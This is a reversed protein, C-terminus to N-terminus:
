KIRLRQGVYIKDPNSIGNLKAISKYTVGYKAAIDSLTDGDKVIYYVSKDKKEGNIKSQVEDYRDGLVVKRIDGNGYKGAKTEEVLTNINSESIHNIFNQVENYRPGLKSKRENGDGYKGQMVEIVLDLVPRSDIEPKSFGNTDYKSARKNWENVDGYFKDLDLNGNYGNLRGTSTYQRIICEYAGENWPHEQYGTPNNNAYQAVWYEYNLGSFRPIVSKSAYIIPKVGTKKFVYDCWNKVWEKDNKGFSSNGQSEWDLVLIAKGIYKQIKELFHDAEKIYDQGNAYHYLGLCKGLSIITDSFDYCTTNLFGVGETAKVIAFDFPVRDLKIGRQWGSIDIGNM